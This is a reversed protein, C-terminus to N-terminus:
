DLPAFPACLENSSDKHWAAQLVFGEAIIRGHPLGNNKIAFPIAFLFPRLGYQWCQRTEVVRGDRM